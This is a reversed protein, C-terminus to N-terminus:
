LDDTHKKEEMAFGDMDTYGVVLIKEYDEDGEFVLLDIFGLIDDEEDIIMASISEHGDTSGTKISANKYKRQLNGKIEKYANDASSEYVFDISVRVKYVIKDDPFYYARLSCEHGSFRGKFERQGIPLSKNERTNLCYNKAILKQQFTTISGTIPIGLITLHKTQGYAFVVMFLFSILLLRKKISYNTDGNMMRLVM